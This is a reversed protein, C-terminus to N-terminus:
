ALRGELFEDVIRPIGVCPIDPDRKRGRQRRIRDDHAVVTGAHRGGLHAALVEVDRAVLAGAHAVPRMPVVPLDLSALADALERPERDGSLHLDARHGAAALGREHDVLALEDLVAAIELRNGQGEGFCGCHIALGARRNGQGAEIVTQVKGRGFAQALDQDVLVPALVLEPNMDVAHGKGDLIHRAPRRAQIRRQRRGAGDVKM